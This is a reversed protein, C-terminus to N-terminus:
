TTSPPPPYKAVLKNLTDQIEPDTSGATEAFWRMEAYRAFVQDWTEGTVNSNELWINAVGDRLEYEAHDVLSDTGSEDVFRHGDQPMFPLLYRRHFVVTSNHGYCEVRFDCIVSM